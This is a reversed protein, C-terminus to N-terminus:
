ERPKTTRWSIFYGTILMIGDPALALDFTSISIAVQFIGVLVPSLNPELTVLKLHTSLPKTPYSRRVTTALRVLNCPRRAQNHRREPKKTGTICKTNEHMQHMLSLFTTGYCLM